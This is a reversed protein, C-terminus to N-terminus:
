SLARIYLREMVSAGESPNALLEEFAQIFLLQQDVLQKLTFKPLLEALKGLYWPNQTSLNLTSKEGSPFAYRESLEELMKKQIGRSHSPLEGSDFLAKLQLLLRNRHQLATLLPRIEKHIFCHEKLTLLAKDLNQSFFADAADFFDIDGFPAVLEKVTEIGIEGNKGVYSALKKLEELAMRANSHVREILFYLAETSISVELVKAEEKLLELSGEENKGSELYQHHSLQSLAKYEKRRRDVPFASITVRVLESPISELATLLQALATKSSESRGIVSDSLFNVNKFHIAKTGSFLNQTQISQILLETVKEVEAVSQTRADISECSFSDLGQTQQHFLAEAQRQVLFEDDGSVFFFQKQPDKPM